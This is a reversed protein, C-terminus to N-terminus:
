EAVLIVSSFDKEKLASKGIIFHIAKVDGKLFDLDKFEDPYYSLLCVEDEKLKKYNSLISSKNNSREFELNYGQEIEYDSEYCENFNVSADLGGECYRVVAEVPTKDFDLFFFLHGSKPLVNDKDFKSVEELNLHCFFMEGESFLDNSFWKESILTEGFFKSKDIEYGGKKRSIKISM